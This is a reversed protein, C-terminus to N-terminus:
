RSGGCRDTRTPPRRPSADAEDAQKSSALAAMALRRVRVTDEAEDGRRPTLRALAMQTLRRVTEPSPTFLRANRRLLSEFGRAIGLDCRWPAGGDARRAAALGVLLTM